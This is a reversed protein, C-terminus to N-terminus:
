HRIIETKSHEIMIQDLTHISIKLYINSIEPVLKLAIKETDTLPLKCKYEELKSAQRFRKVTHRFTDITDEIHM